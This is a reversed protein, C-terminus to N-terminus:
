LNALILISVQRSDMGRWTRQRMPRRSRAAPKARLSPSPTGLIYMTRLSRLTAAATATVTKGTGSRCGGTWWAVCDIFDTEKEKDKQKFDRDCAISFSCVPTKAQTERLEPDHTLRGMVIIRNLM